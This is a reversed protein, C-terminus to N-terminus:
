AEPSPDQQEGPRPRKAPPIIKRDTPRESLWRDVQDVRWIRINASLMQGSPFGHDDILRNLQMWSTVIKADVLDRYRCFTPLAADKPPQARM